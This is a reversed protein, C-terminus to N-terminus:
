APYRRTISRTVIAPSRGYKSGNRQTRPRAAALGAAAAVVVVFVFVFVFM